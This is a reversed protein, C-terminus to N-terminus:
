DDDGDHSLEDQKNREDVDHRVDVGCVLSMSYVHRLRDRVDDGHCKRCHQERELKLLCKLFNLKVNKIMM